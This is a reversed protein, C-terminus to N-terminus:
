NWISRKDRNKAMEIEREKEKKDNARKLILWFAIEVIQSFFLVLIAMGHGNM